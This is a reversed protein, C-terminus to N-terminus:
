FIRLTPNKREDDGLEFSHQPAAAPTVVDGFVANRSGNECFIRIAIESLVCSKGKGHLAVSGQFRHQKAGMKM